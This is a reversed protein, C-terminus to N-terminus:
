KVWQTMRPSSFIHLHRCMFVNQPMEKTRSFILEMMISLYRRRRDWFFLNIYKSETSLGGKYLFAEPCNVSSVTRHVATRCHQSWDPCEVSSSVAGNHGSGADHGIDKPGGQWSTVCSLSRPGKRWASNGQEAPLGARCAHLHGLVLYVLFNGFGLM